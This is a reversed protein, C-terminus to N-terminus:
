LGKVGGAMLNYKDGEGEVQVDPGKVEAQKWKVRDNKDYLVLSTEALQDFTISLIRVHEPNNKDPGCFWKYTWGCKLTPEGLLSAIEERSLIIKPPLYKMISSLPESLDRRSGMDSEYISKAFGNRNNPNAKFQTYIALMEKPLEPLSAARKLKSERFERIPTKAYVKAATEFLIQSNASSLEDMKIIDNRFSWDFHDTCGKSVFLAYTSGPVLADGFSAGAFLEVPERIDNETLDGIIVPRVIQAKFFYFKNPTARVSLIKAIVLSNGQELANFLVSESFSGNEATINEGVQVEAPDKTNTQGMAKESELGDKGVDLTEQKIGSHINIIVVNSPFVGPYYEVSTPDNLGSSDEKGVGIRLGNGNFQVRYQGPQRIDYQKTIDFRDFLTKTEGPKILTMAGSTQVSEATYEVEKGDPGKITMSNNVAVQQCDYSLISDGQNILRLRFYM